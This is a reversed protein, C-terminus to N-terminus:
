TERSHPPPTSSAKPNHIEGGEHTSPVGSRLAPSSSLNSSEALGEGDSGM